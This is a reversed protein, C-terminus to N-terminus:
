IADFLWPLQKEFEVGMPTVEKTSAVCRRVFQAALVAAERVDREKLYAGAFVAAFLDGTGHFSRPIYKDRFAYREERDAFYWGIHDEDWRIGTIVVAKAGLALLKEALTELYARSPAEEYPLDALAAAETVNPLIVEAKACLAKEAAIHDETIRSYLKGHDGMVPDLILPCSFKEVINGVAEAQAPHSLYGASIGDFTVGQRFWHDAFASMEETLSVEEPDPFGTHTSLVATPLLSCHVGMASLVPLAVTLSCRGM